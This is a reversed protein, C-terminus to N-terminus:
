RRRSHLFGTGDNSQVPAFTREIVGVGLKLNHSGRTNSLTIQGQWTNNKLLIPVFRADGLTTYGAVAFNPLGSTREDLNIGPLGDSQALNQGHTETLSETNFYLKGAKAELLLTPTLINLYNVHLGWADAISPGGFGAASGGSDVGNVLGFVGPVMTEVGNNSYRAYISQNNNFRHDVRVDFTDSKQERTVNTTFNSALGTTTPTPYLALFKMSVADLLNAPIVNGAFATRPTTFPNYIVTGRGLLESFDGTRMLATPVTSVWTVGKDQHFHEYDGFFFTQNRIIPGGVSGGWEAGAAAAAEAPRAARLLRLRESKENRFFGYASGKFANSGSKTLINVM